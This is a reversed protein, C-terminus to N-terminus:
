LITAGGIVTNRQYFVVAQGPTIAWKPSQFKVAVKGNKIPSLLAKTAIDKYRVKAMVNIPRSISDIAILNPNDAELRSGYGEPREGAVITNEDKLIAIVYLPQPHAIGLGKRQGITYNVIGTHNGILEGNKNIIPGPKPTTSLTERLFRSYNNDPIFCIEQSEKKHAVPLNYKNALKRVNGKTLKGLPMLTKSLQAQTLPYLFYSQDKTSDFAKKLLFRKKKQNYEIRAYHGTAIYGADLEAAKQMLLNFKIHQNCRICPNPTRGQSYEKCFNDIVKEKFPQRFNLVYHPINLRHAVRKADEVGGLGCCGGWNSTKPLLQMTIGIVQYGKEKLLAATVSSDVGGSMAVLVKKAM